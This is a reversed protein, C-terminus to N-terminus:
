RSVPKGTRAEFASLIADVNDKDLRLLLAAPRTDLTLQHQASRILGLRKKEERVYTVGGIERYPVSRLATGGAAPTVTMRDELFTLVVDVATEVTGQQTILKVKRFSVDPLNV